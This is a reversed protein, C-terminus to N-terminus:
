EIIVPTSTPTWEYLPGMDAYAVNVCGHSMPHGFNNHWYAGHIYYSGGKNFKFRMNWKTNPFDYGKGFYHILPVKKEITFTGRPTPKGKVGTSVKIEKVLYKGTFYQLRQKAISVHITKPLKIPASDFPDYGDQLEQADSYGDGDSDIASAATTTAAFAVTSTMSEAHVFNRPVFLFVGIFFLAFLNLKM